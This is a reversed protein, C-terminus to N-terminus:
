SRANTVIRSELMVVKMADMMRITRSRTRDLAEGDSQRNAHDRAHERRDHHGPQDEVVDQGRPFHFFQANLGEDARPKKDEIM